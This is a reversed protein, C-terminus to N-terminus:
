KSAMEEAGTWNEPVGENLYKIANEFQQGRYFNM